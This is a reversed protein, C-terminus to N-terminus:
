GTIMKLNTNSSAKKYRTGGIAGETIMKLNSNQVLKKKTGRVV